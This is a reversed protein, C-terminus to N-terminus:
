GAKLLKALTGGLVAREDGSPLGLDVVADVPADTGMDFPHDTGLVVHDAGVRDILFRLSRADHTISDCFVNGLYASPPKPLKANLEPRVKHGHDLRGIGYPLFGGGHALVIKLRPFEEFVGAMLLRAGAIATEMPFGVLNWLHHDALRTIDGANQPHLFLPVDLRQAAAFVPEIGAVDLDVGNVHSCLAAGRLRLDTVARDLERAAREADQLPLSALPLFRNPHACAMEALGDNVARAIREGVDAPAWYAFLQPPPSIAAAALKRRDMEALILRDDFLGPRLVPGREVTVGAPPRYLLEGSETSDDIEVVGAFARRRVEDIFLRPLVHFHIDITDV